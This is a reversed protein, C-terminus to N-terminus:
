KLLTEEVELFVSKWDNIKKQRFLTITPYWRTQTGHFGWREDTVFSLIGFTKKGLAGSLHLSCSDISIVLDMANILEATDKFNKIDTGYLEFDDCNELLTQNHMYPNLRYIAGFKQLEKFEILPCNKYKAHEHNPNGEWCIGINFKSLPIEENKSAKLYPNSPILKDKLLFPLGLSLTHIDHLPIEPNTKDFFLM